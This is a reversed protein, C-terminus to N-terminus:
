IWKCRPLVLTIRTGRNPASEIELRGGSQEAFDKVMTLGLGTGRGREKTTFFRETARRMVESAMGVGTDSVAVAVFQGAGELDREDTSITLTGHAQMADAANRVLNLLALDFQGADVMVPLPKPTLEFRIDVGTGAAQAILNDSGEILQGLEAPHAGDHQKYSFSLMQQTLRRVREAERVARALQDAQRDSSPHACALELNASVVTMLNNIDHAIGAAMGGLTEMRQSQQLVAETDERRVVGFQGVDRHITSQRLHAGM